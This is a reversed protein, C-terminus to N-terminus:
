WVTGVGRLMVGFVPAVVMVYVLASLGWDRAIGRRRGKEVSSLRLPVLVFFGVMGIYLVVTALVAEAIPPVSALSGIVLYLYAYLVGSGAGAFYHVFGSLRESSVDPHTETLVGAAVRPPTGGEPLRRMALDMGLTAVLGAVVGLPLIVTDTM